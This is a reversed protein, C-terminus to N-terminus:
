IDAGGCTALLREHIHSGGGCTPPHFQKAGAVGRGGGSGHKGWVARGSGLAELIGGAGDIGIMATEVGHGNSARNVQSLLGSLPFYVYEVLEGAEYIIAGLSLNFRKLEGTLREAVSAPLRNLFQNEAQDTFM